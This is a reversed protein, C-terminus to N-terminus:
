KVRNKDRQLCKLNRRLSSRCALKLVAIMPLKWLLLCSKLKWQLIIEESVRYLSHKLNGLKYKTLTTWWLFAIKKTFGLIKTDFITGSCVQEELQYKSWYMFHQKVPKFKEFQNRLKLNVIGLRFWFEDFSFFVNRLTLRNKWIM